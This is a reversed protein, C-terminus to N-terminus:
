IELFLLEMFIDQPLYFPPYEISDLRLQRDFKMATVPLYQVFYDISQKKSRHFTQDVRKVFNIRPHQKSFCFTIVSTEQIVYKYSTSIWLYIYQCCIILLLSSSILTLDFSQQKKWSLLHECVDYIEHALNAKRAFADFSTVLQLHCWDNFKILCNILSWQTYIKLIQDFPHISSHFMAVDYKRDVVKLLFVMSRSIVFFVMPRSSERM